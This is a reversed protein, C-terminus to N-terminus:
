RDSTLDWGSSVDPAAIASRLSLVCAMREVLGGRDRFTRFAFVTRM